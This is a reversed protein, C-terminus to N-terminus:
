QVFEQQLVSCFFPAFHIFSLTNLNLKGIIQFTIMLELLHPVTLVCLFIESLRASRFLHINHAIPGM